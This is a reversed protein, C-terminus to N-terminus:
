TFEVVEFKFDFHDKIFVEGKGKIMLVEEIDSIQVEV